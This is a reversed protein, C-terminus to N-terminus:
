GYRAPARTRLVRPDGIVGSFRLRRRRSPSPYVSRRTPPSGCARHPWAPEPSACPWASRVSACRTSPRKASSSTSRPTSASRPSRRRSAPTRSPTTMSAASASPTAPSSASWTASRVTSRTSASGTSTGARPRSCAPRPAATAIRSGCACISASRTCTPPSPGCAPRSPTPSTPTAPAPSRGNSSRSTTPPTPPSSSPAASPNGDGPAGLLSFMSVWEPQETTWRLALGTADDQEPGAGTAHYHVNLVLRAGAPLAIGVDAPVEMPLGGPVWGSVLPAKGSLGSSGGCDPKIGNAWGASEAAEDVYILVHHVIKRNGPILQLGTVFVDTENGPDISLCNFFDLTNDLKEVTVGSAMIATASPDPLDLSPPTPLPAALSPDGEPAGNDSWAQFMAKLEDSLRADHKFGHPPQCADTEVAHWPPMLGEAVDFAMVAAWDRTDEYTEM